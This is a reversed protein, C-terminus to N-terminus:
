GTKPGGKVGRVGRIIRFLKKIGLVVCPISLILSGCLVVRSRNRSTRVGLPVM